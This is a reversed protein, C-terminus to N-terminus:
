TLPLNPQPAGEPRGGHRQHHGGVVAHEEQHGPLHHREAAEQQDEGLVLAALGMVIFFPAVLIGTLAAVAGQARGKEARVWRTCAVRM